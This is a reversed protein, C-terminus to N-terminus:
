SFSISFCKKANDSTRQSLEEFSIGRALAIKKAVHVVSSPENRRGRHPEPTLYPADTELLVQHIPTNQAIELLHAAKKFTVIGSFSLYYGREWCQQAFNAPGSFCHIIVTLGQGQEDLIALCDDWADRVHVVLPKKLTHALSVQETFIGRQIAPESHNYFYDLGCEGIALCKKHTALSALAFLYDGLAQSSEHPHIGASFYVESYQQALAQAALSSQVDCGISIMAVVGTQLAREVVERRDNDYKEDNLHCHTDILM